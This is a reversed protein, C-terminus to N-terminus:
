AVYHGSIKNGQLLLCLSANAATIINFQRGVSPCKRLEIVPHSFTRCDAKGAVNQIGVVRIDGSPFGDITMSATSLHVIYVSTKHAPYVLNVTTLAYSRLNTGM